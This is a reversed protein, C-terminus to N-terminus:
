PLSSRVCRPLKYCTKATSWALTFHHFPCCPSWGPLWFPPLYQVSFRFQSSIPYLSVSVVIPAVLTCCHQAVAVSFGILNWEIWEVWNLWKLYMYIIENETSWLRNFFSHLQNVQLSVSAPWDFQSAAWSLIKMLLGVWCKGWTATWCTRSKDAFVSLFVAAQVSLGHM